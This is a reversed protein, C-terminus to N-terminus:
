VLSRRPARGWVTINSPAARPDVLLALRLGRADPSIDVPQPQTYANEGRLEVVHHGADLELRALTLSDVPSGDVIVSIGGPSM